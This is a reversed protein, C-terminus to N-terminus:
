KTFRIPENKVKKPQGAAVAGLVAWFRLVAWVIIGLVATHYLNSGIELLM